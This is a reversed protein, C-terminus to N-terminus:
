EFNFKRRAKAEEKGEGITLREREKQRTRQSYATLLTFSLYLAFVSLVVTRRICVIPFLSDSFSLLGDAVYSPGVANVASSCGLVTKVVSQQWNGSACPLAFWFAASRNCYSSRLVRSSGLASSDLRHQSSTASIVTPFLWAFSKRTSAIEIINKAM